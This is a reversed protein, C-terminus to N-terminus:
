GPRRSKISEARAPAEREDRARGSAKYAGHPAGPAAYQRAASRGLVRALEVLADAPVPYELRSGVEGGGPLTQPRCPPAPSPHKNSSLRRAM